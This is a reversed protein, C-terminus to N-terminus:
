GLDLAILGSAPGSHRHIQSLSLQHHCRPNKSFGKVEAM